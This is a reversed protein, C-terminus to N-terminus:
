PETRKQSNATRPANVMPTDWKEMPSCGSCDKGDCFGDAHAACRHRKANPDPKLGTWVLALIDLLARLATKLGKKM